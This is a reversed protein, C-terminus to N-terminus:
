APLPRTASARTQSRQLSPAPSALSHIGQRLRPRVGSLAFAQGRCDHGRGAEVPRPSWELFSPRRLERRGKESAGCCVMQCARLDRIYKALNMWLIVCAIIEGLLTDTIRAFRVQRRSILVGDGPKRLADTYVSPGQEGVKLRMQNTQGCKQWVITGISPM